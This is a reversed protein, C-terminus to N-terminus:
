YSKHILTHIGQAVREVGVFAIERYDTTPYVALGSAATLTKPYELKGSTADNVSVWSVPFYGNQENAYSFFYVKNSDPSWAPGVSAFKDEVVVHEALTRSLRSRCNVAVIRWQRGRPEGEIPAGGRGALFAVWKGNPSWTPNRLIDNDNNEFIVREAGFDMRRTCVGYASKGARRSKDKMYVIQLKSPALRWAPMTGDAVKKARPLQGARPRGKFRLQELKGNADYVVWAEGGQIRLAPYKKPRKDKTLRIPPTSIDGYYIEMFREANATSAFVFAGEASPEETVAWSFMHDYSAMGKFLLRAEPAALSELLAIKCGPEEPSAQLFALHKGSCSWKPEYHDNVSSYLCAFMLPKVGPKHRVAAMLDRVLPYRMQPRLSVRLEGPLLEEGCLGQVCAVLVLVCPLCFRTM